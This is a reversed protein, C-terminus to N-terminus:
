IRLDINNIRVDLKQNLKEQKKTLEELLNNAYHKVGAPTKPDNVVQSARALKEANEIGNGILNSIHNEEEMERRNGASAIDILGNIAGQIDWTPPSNYSLKIIKIADEDTYDVLKIPEDDGTYFVIPRIYDKIIRWFEDPNDNKTALMLFKESNNSFILSNSDSPFLEESKLAVFFDSDSAGRHM